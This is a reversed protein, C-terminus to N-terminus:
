RAKRLRSVLIQSPILVVYMLLISAAAATGLDFRTFGTNFGFWSMTTTSIGPGGKTLMYLIDLLKFADMARILIAITMIPAAIPLMVHRFIMWRSGGDVEAAEVLEEPVTQLAALLILFMYPTWEWIDTLIISWLAWQSSAVWAIPKDVIRLNLLALNLMGYEVNYILRFILGVAIPSVVMPLFLIPVVIGKGRFQRNLLLAMGLGLSFEVGVAVGVFFLTRGISPLFVRTDTLVNVYNQLGVFNVEKQVGYDTFSMWMAFAFPYLTIVGIVLLM